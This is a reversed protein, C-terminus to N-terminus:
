DQKVQRSPSIGSGGYEIAAFLGCASEADAPRHGAVNYRWPGFFIGKRFKERSGAV